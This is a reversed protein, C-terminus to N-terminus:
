NRKRYGNDELNYVKSPKNFNSKGQNPVEDREMRTNQATKVPKSAPNARGRTYPRNLILEYFSGFMLSHYRVPEHMM